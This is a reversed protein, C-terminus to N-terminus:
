QREMKPHARVQVMGRHVESPKKVHRTESKWKPVQHTRVKEKTPQFIKPNQSLLVM